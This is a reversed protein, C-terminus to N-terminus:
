PPNPELELVVNRTNGHGVVFNVFHTTAINWSIGGTGVPYKAKPGAIDVAGKVMKINVIHLLRTKQHRAINSDLVARCSSTAFVQMHLM